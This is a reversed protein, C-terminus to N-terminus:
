SSAVGHLGSPMAGLSTPATDTDAPDLRLYVGVATLHREAGGYIRGAPFPQTSLGKIVADRELGETLEVPRVTVHEGRDVVTASGAAVLNRIWQSRGNPHGVYWRGDIDLVTLLHRRERGTRRGVIRVERIPAAPQLRTVLRMFPKPTLFMVRFVARWLRSGETSAHLSAGTTM